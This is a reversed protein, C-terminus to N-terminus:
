TGGRVRIGPNEGPPEVVAIRRPRRARADTGPRRGSRQPVDGAAPAGGAPVALVDGVNTSRAARRNVRCDDQLEPGDQPRQAGEVAAGRGRPSDALGAKRVQEAAEGVDEVHPGSEGPRLVAIALRPSPPQRQGRRRTQIPAGGAAGAFAPAAAVEGSASTRATSVRAAALSPAAPVSASATSQPHAAVGAVVLRWGARGVAADLDFAAAGVEVRRVSGPLDTLLGVAAPGGVRVLADLEPLRLLRPAARVLLAAAGLRPPPPRGSGTVTLGAVERRWGGVPVPGARAVSRLVALVVVGDDPEVVRV